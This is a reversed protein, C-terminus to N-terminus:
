EHPGVKINEPIRHIQPQVPKLKFCTPHSPTKIGHFDGEGQSGGM